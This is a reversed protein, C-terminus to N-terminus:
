LRCYRSRDTIQFLLKVKSKEGMALVPDCQGIVARKEILFGFIDKVSRM